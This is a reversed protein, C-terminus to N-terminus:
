VYLIETKTEHFLTVARTFHEGWTPMAFDPARTVVTTIGAQVIAKACDMCPHLSCYLTCGDTRTGVRAANCIANIEAHCAHAYKEPRLLRGPVDDRAGRTPGNYGQARVEKEPGVIVCGVKTSDKSWTAIHDALALFRLHWQLNIM